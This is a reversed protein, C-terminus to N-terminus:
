LLLGRYFLPLLAEIFKIAKTTKALLVLHYPKNDDETNRGAKKRMDEAVYMESGIIPKIGAAKCANYFKIAGYLAGHDTIAIAPAGSEKVERVLKNIEAAGDLLSYETHTHLHIFSNEFM